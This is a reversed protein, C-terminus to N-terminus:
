SVAYSDRWMLFVKGTVPVPTTATDYFALDAFGTGQTTLNGDTDFIYGCNRNSTNVISTSDNWTVKAVDNLYGTYIKTVPDFGISVYDTEKWGLIDTNQWSARTTYTDFATGSRIRMWNAGVGSEIELMCFNTMAPNSMIVLGSKGHHPEVIKAKSLQNATAFQKDTYIVASTDGITTAAIYKRPTLWPFFESGFNFIDLGVKVVGGIITFVDPLNFFNLTNVDEQYSKNGLAPVITNFDESTWRVPIPVKYPLTLRDLFPTSGILDSAINIRNSNVARRQWPYSSVEVVEGDEIERDIEITHEGITIKPHDLPGEIFVRLWADPGDGENRILYQPDHDSSLEVVNENVGYSITDARRWQALVKVVEGNNVKDDETITIQGPRGFIIKPIEDLKTCVYLAKMEGWIKRGDDFRWERNLDAISPMSHWFNPITYEYGPMLRNHLVEFTLDITTPKFDDMGFRTESSRPLQYDQANVDHPNATVTEVKINTGFGMVIDGIQWQGPVLNKYYSM